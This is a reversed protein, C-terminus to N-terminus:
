TAEFESAVLIGIIHGEPPLQVLVQPAIHLEHTAVLDSYALEGFQFKLFAYETHYSQGHSISGIVFSQLPPPVNM